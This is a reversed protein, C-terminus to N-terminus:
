SVRDSNADPNDLGAARSGASVRNVREVPPQAARLAAALYRAQKQAAAANIEAKRRKKEAEELDSSLKALQFELDKLRAKDMIIAAPVGAPAVIIEPQLDAEECEVAPTQSNILAQATFDAFGPILKEAEETQYDEKEPASLVIMGLRRGNAALPYILLSSISELGAAEYFSSLQRSGFGERQLQVVGAQNLSTNLTSQEALDLTWSKIEGPNQTSPLSYFIMLDQNNEDILGIASFAPEFIEDMMILSYTLRHQPQQTAIVQAAQELADGFNNISAQRRSESELLPTLSYLYAYVAWLSYVVLNGLRVWYAVNTDILLFEPYSWLQVIHAFLLLGLIIFPFAGLSRGNFLLYGWGAALVAIQILSWATAQATGQFAVVGGALQSQWAQASFFYLVGCLVLSILLLIDLVLPYREPPPILAWVILSVSATNLAQELPPLVVAVTAPNPRVYLGALLIILRGFFVAGAAWSMNRAYEDEPQRRWRAYSIAFVVQLAFMTILHYIFSGPPESIIQIIQRTLDM